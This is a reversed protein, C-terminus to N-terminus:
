RYQTATIIGALIFGLGMLLYWNSTAGPLLSVYNLFITVMGLGFLTFMLIPVWLPSPMDEYRATPPTYRASAGPGGKETVRKNGRRKSQKSVAEEAKKAAIREARAAAGGKTLDGDDTDAKATVKAAKATSSTKVTAVDDDARAVRKVAERPGRTPMVKDTGPEIKRKTPRTPKAV